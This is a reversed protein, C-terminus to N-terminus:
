SFKSLNSNHKRKTSNRKKEKKEEEEILRRNKYPSSTLIESRFAKSKKRTSRDKRKPVPWIKRPSVCDNESIQSSSAALSASTTIRDEVTLM